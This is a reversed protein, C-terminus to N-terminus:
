RLVEIHFAVIALLGTVKRAATWFFSRRVGSGIEVVASRSSICLLREPSVLKEGSFFSSLLVSEVLVTGDVLFFVQIIQLAGVVRLGMNVDM